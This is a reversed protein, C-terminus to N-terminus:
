KKIKVNLFLKLALILDVPSSPSALCKKLCWSQGFQSIDYKSTMCMLNVMHIDKLGKNKLLLLNYADRFHNNYM